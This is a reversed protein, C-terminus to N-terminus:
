RMNALRSLIRLSLYERFPPVNLATELNRADAASLASYDLSDLVRNVIGHELFRTNMGMQESVQNLLEEERRQIADETSNSPLEAIQRRLRHIITAMGDVRILPSAARGMLVPTLRSLKWLAWFIKNGDADGGERGFERMASVSEQANPTWESFIQRVASTWHESMDAHSLSDPLGDDGLWARLASAPHRHAFVRVDHVWSQSVIPARMWRLMAATELALADDDIMALYPVARWRGGLRVGDYSIAAFGEYDSFWDPCPVDWIHLAGDPHSVTEQAPSIVPPAGPTWFAVNHLDGPELPQSLWLRIFGRDDLLSTEIVGPDYVEDAITLLDSLEVWNYPARVSLPAGYGGVSDFPRPTKWLRRLFVAGEMLAIDRRDSPPPLIRYAYQKADSAPMPDDPHVAQWGNAAFRLAGSVQPHITRAINVRRDHRRLGIKVELSPTDSKPSLFSLIDFRETEFAGDELMDFEMPRAGIRIYTVSTNEDFGFVSVSVPSAVSLDIRNSPEMRVNVGTAWDPEPKAVRSPSPTGSRWIEEGELSVSVDRDADGIALHLKKAYDGKGIQRFPLNPPETELDASALIGYGKGSTLRAGDSNPIRRGALEFLEVEEVPDWLAVLQSGPSNGADDVITAIFEPHEAPIVLQEPESRYGGNDSEFLRALVQKGSKIAYRDATLNFDALNVVDCVFEPANPMDWRLIPSSLFEPPAEETEGVRAPDATGLERKEKCRVLM